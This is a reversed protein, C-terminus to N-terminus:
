PSRPRDVLYRRLAKVANLAAVRTAVTDDARMRDLAIEVAVTLATLQDTAGRMRVHAFADARADDAAAAVQSSTMPNSAHGLAVVRPPPARIPIPTPACGFLVLLWALARKM